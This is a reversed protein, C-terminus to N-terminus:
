KEEERQYTVENITLALPMKPGFPEEILQIFGVFQEDLIESEEALFTANVAYDAYKESGDRQQM